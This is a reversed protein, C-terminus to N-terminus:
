HCVTRFNEFSATINGDPTVTLHYEFTGVENNDPGQGILRFDASNSATYNNGANLNEISHHEGRFEYKAGTTLGIGHVNDYNLNFAVHSGGAADNTPHAVIHFFGTLLVDEGNCANTIVGDASLDRINAVVAAHASPATHALVLAWTGLLVTVLGAAVGLRAWRM